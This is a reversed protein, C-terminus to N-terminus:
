CSLTSLSDHLQKYAEIKTRLEINKQRFLFMKNKQTALADKLKKIGTEIDLSVYSSRVRIISQNLGDLQIVNISKLMKVSASLVQINQATKQAAKMSEDGKM